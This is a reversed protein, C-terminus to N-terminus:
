EDSAGAPARAPGTRPRLHEGGDVPIIAGTMLAFSGTVLDAIAEAMERPRGFRALPTPAEDVGIARLRAIEAADAVPGPAVLNVRVGDAAFEAGLQRVLGVLAAKSVAYASAGMTPVLGQISGIMLIQALPGPRLLAGFERACVLAGTLNVELVRRWLALDVTRLTHPALDPSRGTMAAAHVIADLGGCEARLTEAAHHVAAEDTLDLRIFRARRGPDPTAADVGIVEVGRETFVDAINGGILGAVGTVLIM